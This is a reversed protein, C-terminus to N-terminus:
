KIQNIGMSIVLVEKLLFFYILLMIAISIMSAIGSGLVGMPPFGWNGNILLYSLFVQLVASFVSISFILNTKKEIKLLNTFVFTLLTFLIYPSMIFAYTTAINLVEGSFGYIGQIIQHGFLFIIIMFALGIGISLWLVSSIYTNLKRTDGEGLAKAGHINFALSIVGLIGGFSYLFSDFTSVVALSDTSKQAIIVLSVQSIVIQLLNSAILPITFSQIQKNM